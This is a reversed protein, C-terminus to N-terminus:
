NIELNFIAKSSKSGLSRPSTQLKWRQLSRCSLRKNVVIIIGKEEPKIKCDMRLVM